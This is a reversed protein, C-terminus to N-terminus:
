LSTPLTITEQYFINPVIWGSSAGYSASSVTTDLSSCDNGWLATLNSASNCFPNSYASTDFFIGFNTSLSDMGFDAIDTLGSKTRSMMYVSVRSATDNGVFDTYMNMSMADSEAIGCSPTSTDSIGSFWRGNYLMAKGTWLGNARSIQISVREPARPDNAQCAMGAIFVTISWTEDDTYTVNIDVKGTQEGGNGDDDPMNALDLQITYQSGSVDVYGASSGSQKMLISFDTSSNKSYYITEDGDTVTGSGGDPISGLNTGIESVIERASDLFMQGMDLYLRLLIPQCEFLDVGECPDVSTQHLLTNNTLLPKNSNSSYDLSSPTFNNSISQLNNGVVTTTTNGSSSDSNDGGGCAATMVTFLILSFLMSLKKM